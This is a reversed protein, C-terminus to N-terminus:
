CCGSVGSHENDGTELDWENAVLVVRQVVHEVEGYAHARRHASFEGDVVRVLLLPCPDDAYRRTELGRVYHTMILHSLPYCLRPIPRLPNIIIVLKAQKPNDLCVLLVMRTPDINLPRNFRFSLGHKAPSGHFASCGDSQFKHTHFKISVRISLGCKAVNSWRRPLKDLCKRINM